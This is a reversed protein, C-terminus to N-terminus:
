IALRREHRSPRLIGPPPVPEATESKGTVDPESRSEHPPADLRGEFLQPTQSYSRVVTVATSPIGTQGLRAALQLQTLSGGPSVVFRVIPLSRADSVSPAFKMERSLEHLTAALVRDIDWGTTDITDAAGVTLGNADVFVTVPVRSVLGSLAQSQGQSLLKQLFPDPRPGTGSVGSPTGPRVTETIARSLSPAEKTIDVLAPDGAPGATRTASESHAYEAMPWGSPAAPDPGDLRQMDHSPLSGKPPATSIGDSIEGAGQLLRGKLQAHQTGAGNREARESRETESTGSSDSNVTARPAIAVDDFGPREAKPLYPQAGVPESAAADFRSAWDDSASDSNAPAHQEGFLKNPAVTEEPPKLSRLYQPPPAEGGAYFRGDREDGAAEDGILVRGDPLVRAQRSGPKTRPESPRGSGPPSQIRNVLGGYLNQRRTLAALVAERLADREDADVAGASVQKKQEILEYGFHIDAATLFRQAAYFPLSGDPRVLLLVYPKVSLSRGHRRDHLGLVGSILPNDNAPFGQMNAATVKIGSPLFEFGNETVNIMIPSRQTGTSNTFDVVTQDTGVSQARQETDDAIRRLNILASERSSLITEAQETKRSSSELASKLQALNQKKRDLEQALKTEQKRLAALEQVESQYDNKQLSYSELEDKANQLQQRLAQHRASESELFKELEQLETQPSADSTREATAVPDHRSDAVDNDGSTIAVAAKDSTAEASASDGAPKVANGSGASPSHPLVIPQAPSDDVQTLQADRQDNRIRRTTVLLLLILAGM